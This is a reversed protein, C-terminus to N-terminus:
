EEENSHQHSQPASHKDSDQINISKFRFDVGNAAITQMVLKFEQGNHQAVFECSNGPHLQNMAKVFKLDDINFVVNTGELEGYVVDPLLSEAKITTLFVHTIM